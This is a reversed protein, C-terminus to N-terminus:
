GRWKILFGMGRNSKTIIQDTFHQTSNARTWKQLAAHLHIHIRSQNWYVAKVMTELDGPQFRPSSESPRSFSTYSANSAPVPLRGGSTRRPMHLLGLPETPLAWSHSLAAILLRM